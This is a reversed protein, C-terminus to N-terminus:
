TRLHHAAPLAGCVVRRRKATKSTAEGAELSLAASQESPRKLPACSAGAFLGQQKGFTPLRPSPPQTLTDLLFKCEGPSISLEAPDVETTSSTASSSGRRGLGPPGSAAAGDVVVDLLISLDSLSFLPPPAASPGLIPELAEAPFSAPDWQLLQEVAANNAEINTHTSPLQLRTLAPPM